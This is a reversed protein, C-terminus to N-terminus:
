LSRPIDGDVATFLRGKYHPRMTRRSFNLRDAHLCESLEGSCDGKAPRLCVNTPIAGRVSGLLSISDVPTHCHYILIVIVTRSM